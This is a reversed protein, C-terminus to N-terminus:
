ELHDNARAKRMMPLSNLPDGMVRRRFEPKRGFNLLLGVGGGAAKLYNLLQVEAYGEITATAKVEVIVTDAVVIDPLFHGVMRGRFHVSLPPEVVSRIGRDDLAIVMARRFVAESFGYGLENHVEYLSGIIADTLEAHPLSPIPTQM